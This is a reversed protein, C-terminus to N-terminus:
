DMQCWDLVDVSEFASQEMTCVDCRIRRDDATSSRVLSLLPSALVSVGISLLSLTSSQDRLSVASGLLDQVGM